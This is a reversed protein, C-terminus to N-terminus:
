EILFEINWKEKLLSIDNKYYEKFSKYMEKSLPPYKGVNMPNLSNPLVEAIELFQYIRKLESETNNFFSESEIVLFQKKDFHVLWKSLQAAYKGRELYFYNYREANYVNGFEKQHNLEYQVAEEFTERPDIGKRRNMQYASYAREIPNRLLVILKINPELKKIREAALPYFLYEPSAEGTIHNESKFPFHAKYWKVGKNYFINFYNLEKKIPRKIEPHFKLYYFLSSTGGKQAGIILFDPLMRQKHSLYGIKHLFWVRLSFISSRM